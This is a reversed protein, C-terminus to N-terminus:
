FASPSPSILNVQGSATIEYVALGRQVTGDQNLRFVGDVGDFGRPQTLMNVPFLHDTQYNSAILSIMSIADYALTALRPPTTAYNQAYNQNFHQRESIPSSVFWSGALSTDQYTEPTDWQGTGLFRVQAPDIGNYLLSSTLLKLQHGGEPLLIADVNQSKIRAAVSQLNTTNDSYEEVFSLNIYYQQATQTAVQKVLQGYPNAPVFLGLNRVGRGSAVDLLRRVQQDPMFGLIYVNRGAVGADNSFSLVPVGSQAAISAIAKTESAFLPGVIIQAGEQIAKNAARMAAEPNGQTDEVVLKINDPANEFLSLQAANFLSTGVQAHRGSMPLLMAIKIANQETEPLQGAKPPLNETLLPGRGEPLPPKQGSQCGTLIAILSSLLLVSLPKFLKLTIEM